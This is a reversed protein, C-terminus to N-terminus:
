FLPPGAVSATAVLWAVLGLIMAIVVEVAGFFLALNHDVMTKVLLMAMAVWYLALALYLIAQAFIRLIEAMARQRDGNGGEQSNTAGMM